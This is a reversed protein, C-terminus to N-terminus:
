RPSSSKGDQNSSISALNMRNGNAKLADQSVPEFIIGSNDVKANTFIQNAIDEGVGHYLVNM